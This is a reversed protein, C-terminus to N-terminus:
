YLVHVVCGTSLCSLVACTRCMRHRFLEICCMYSVDYPSVVLYLVHVVYGTFFCSLAACTRCMRHVFLEICCM